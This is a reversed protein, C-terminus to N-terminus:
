EPIIHSSTPDEITISTYHIEILIPANIIHIDKYTLINQNINIPLLKIKMPFLVIHILRPVNIKYYKEAFSYDTGYDIIDVAINARNTM